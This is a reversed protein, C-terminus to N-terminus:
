VAEEGDEEDEGGDEDDYEEEDEDDVARSGGGSHCADAIVIIQGERGVKQRLRYLYENLEDDM